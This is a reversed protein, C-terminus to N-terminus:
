WTLWKIQIEVKNCGFEEKLSELNSIDFIM